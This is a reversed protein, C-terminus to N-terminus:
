ELGTSEAKFPPLESPVGFAIAQWRLIEIDEPPCHMDSLKWLTDNSWCKLDTYYTTGLSGEAPFVIVATKYDPESGQFYRPYIIDKKPPM